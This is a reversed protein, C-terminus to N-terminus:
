HKSPTVPSLNLLLAAHVHQQFANVASSDASIVVRQSHRDFVLVNGQALQEMQEMSLSFRLENVAIGALGFWSLINGTWLEARQGQGNQGDCSGSGRTNIM